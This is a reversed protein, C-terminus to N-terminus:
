RYLGIKFASYRLLVSASIVVLVPRWNCHLSTSSKTLYKHKEDVWESWKYQWHSGVRSVLTEIARVCPSPVSILHVGDRYKRKFIRRKRGRKARPKKKASWGEFFRFISNRLEADKCLCWPRFGDNRVDRISRLDGFPARKMRIKRRKGRIYGLNFRNPKSLCLFTM